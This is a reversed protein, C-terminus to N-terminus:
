HPFFDSNTKKSAQLLISRRKRKKKEQSIFHAPIRKCSKASSFSYYFFFLFYTFHNSQIHPLIPHYYPTPAFISVPCWDPVSNIWIKLTLLFQFCCWLVAKKPDIAQNDSLAFPRKLHGFWRRGLIKIHCFPQLYSWSVALSSIDVQTKGKHTMATILWKYSAM